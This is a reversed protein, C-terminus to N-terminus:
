KKVIKILDAIIESSAEIRGFTKGSNFTADPLEILSPTPGDVMTNHITMEGQIERTKKIIYDVIEAPEIFAKIEM